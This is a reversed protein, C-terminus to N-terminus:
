HSLPCSPFHSLSPQPIPFPSPSPFQVRTAWHAIHRLVAWSAILESKNTLNILLLFLHLYESRKSTAFSNSMQLCLITTFTWNSAKIIDDYSCPLFLWPTVDIRVKNFSICGTLEFGVSQKILNNGLRLSSLEFQIQSRRSKLQVRSGSFTNTQTGTVPLQSYM